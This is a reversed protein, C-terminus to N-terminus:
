SATWPTGPSSRSSVSTAGVADTCAWLLLAQLAAYGVMGLSLQGWREGAVAAVRDRWDLLDAALRHPDASRRARSGLGAMVGAWREAARRSVLGAVLVSVVAALGLAAVLATWYMSGSVPTASTVLVALALAPLALKLLVVWLNTVFTFAAFASAGFGWSRIMVFNLSMGAAGGFPLVNSVASGTLNLMLARRRTLGPLSGTLVFSHVFIGAFWLLALEGLRRGSLTGLAAAVEHVSTGAVRPLALALLTAALGASVVFRVANRGPHSVAVTGNV